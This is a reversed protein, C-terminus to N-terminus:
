TFQKWTNLQQTQQYNRRGTAVRLVLVGVVLVLYWFSVSAWLSWYATNNSDGFFCFAFVCFRVEFEFVVGHSQHSTIGGAIIKVALSAFGILFKLETQLHYM